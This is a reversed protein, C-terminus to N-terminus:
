KESLIYEGLKILVDMAEGIQKCSYEIEILGTKDRRWANHQKAIEVAESLEM